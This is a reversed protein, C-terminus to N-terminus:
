SLLGEAFRPLAFAAEQVSPTWYRTQIASQGLRESPTLPRNSAALFSWFGSPYTPIAATYLAVHSFSERLGAVMHRILDKHLFPSESQAVMVGEPSMAEKIHHYFESQFLGEAPGVPDTSDVIVVDLGEAKQIWQIGDTYHLYAREDDLASSIEPFFRRAAEVVKDDIEILHAEEVEPHKLIERIAGGDGGGIVAVKKPHPHIYLPIHTIMEHYVYEDVITTQIAGDLVLMRGYTETDAVVLEQFSTQEQWLISKIRVGLSLAPTQYETLWTNM